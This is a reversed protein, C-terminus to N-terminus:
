CTTRGQARLRVASQRLRQQEAALTSRLATLKDIQEDVLAIKEGVLRAGVDCDMREERIAQLLPRIEDLSFDMAQMWQLMQIQKVVDEPYDRYNNGLRRVGSLLGEREYFRLTHRSVGTCREVESVQM